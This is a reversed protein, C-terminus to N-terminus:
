IKRALGRITPLLPAIITSMNERKIQNIKFGATVMATEIERNLHCNGMLKRWVPNILNQWRRRGSGAHAAVHEMFLLSGDPKLVRRIELLATELNAFSCCVLATVVFDFSEDDADITEATGNSIHIDELQSHRTNKQLLQRMHIDPETLVLKTVTEPYFKINAGTGAGVELVEGTVQKLLEHRWEMLCAKEVTNMFRDYFFASLFSM